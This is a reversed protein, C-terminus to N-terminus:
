FQRLPLEVANPLAHLFELVSEPVERKRSATGYKYGCVPCARTLIGQPHEAPYVWSTSKKETQWKVATMIDFDQPLYRRLKRETRQLTKADVTAKGFTKLGLDHFLKLAAIAPSFKYGRALSVGAPTRIGNRTVYGIGVRNDEYFITGEGYQATVDAQARKELRYHTNWELSATKIEVETPQFEDMWVQHECAPSSSNLHWEDWADLLDLWKEADWGKVFRIQEPTIPNKYRRDNDAPDRHAFEMDMQGGGICRGNSLWDGTLSLRGERYEVNVRIKLPRKRYDPTFMGVISSIRFDSM